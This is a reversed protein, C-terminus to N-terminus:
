LEASVGLDLLTQKTLARAAGRAESVNGACIADILKNILLRGKRGHSRILSANVYILTQLMTKNWLEKLTENGATSLLWASLAGNFSIHGGDKEIEEFGTTLEKKLVGASARSDASINRAALDSACELLALRVQFLEVLQKEDLTKVRIGAWHVREALGDAVVAQLAERIPGNSFGFESRLQIERIREGPRYVGKLIRERLLGSLWVTRSFRDAGSQRPNQKELNEPPPKSAKQSTRAESSATSLTKARPRAMHEILWLRPRVDTVASEHTIHIQIGHGERRSSHLNQREFAM